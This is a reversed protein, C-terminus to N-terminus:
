KERQQVILTFANIIEWCVKLSAAEQQTKQLNIKLTEYEARIQDLEKQLEAKERISQEVQEQPWFFVHFWYLATDVKVM